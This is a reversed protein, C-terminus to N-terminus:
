RVRLVHVVQPTAACIGSLRQGPKLDVTISGEDAKVWNFGTAVAVGPPGLVVTDTATVNKLLYSGAGAILPTEALGVTVRAATIGADSTFTDAM